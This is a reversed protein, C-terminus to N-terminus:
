KCRSSACSRECSADDACEAVCGRLCAERSQQSAATSGQGPVTGVGPPLGATPAPKVAARAGREFVVETRTMKADALGVCATIATGRLRFATTPVTLRVQEIALRDGTLRATLREGSHERQLVLCSARAADDAFTTGAPLEPRVYDDM